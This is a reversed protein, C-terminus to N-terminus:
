GYYFPGPDPVFGLIARQAQRELDAMIRDGAEKAAKRVERESQEMIDRLEVARMFRLFEVSCRRSRAEIKELDRELLDIREAPSM